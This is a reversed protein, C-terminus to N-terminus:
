NVVLGISMATQYDAGGPAGHESLIVFPEAGLSANTGLVTITLHLKDGAGGVTKDLSFGLTPTGVGILDEYSFPTVNWTFSSDGASFLDLEITRSQGVPIQLGRTPYGQAGGYMVEDLVPFTAFYPAPGVHPVCPDQGLAASANSWSRQVLNSAGAPTYFADPLVACMDGVEGGTVLTWVLDAEDTSSLAPNSFPFPDTAAEVLEHSIAGTREDLASAGSGLFGPCACGVAYPVTVTGSTTEDHYGGFDSCCSGAGAVTETTGEPLAYLYIVGPDAPGWAPAAGSTNAAIQATLAADTLQAPASGPISIVPLVTLPGVGYEATTAAWHSGESLEVLFAVISAAQADNAYVIPQVKPAALVPGGLDAVQPQRPHPGILAGTDPGDPPGADGANVGGGDFDVRGCSTALCILGANCTGNPYCPGGEVGAAPGDGGCGLMVIAAGLAFL